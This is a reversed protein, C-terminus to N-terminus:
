IAHNEEKFLSKLVATFNPMPYGVVHEVKETSLGLSDGRLVGKLAHVSGINYSFDQVNLYKAVGMIFEKKSKVESSAVNLIGHPQLQLLDCLIYALQNVALTSTYFDDFLTIREKNKLANIVWHLFGKQTGVFNTRVVLSNAYIKTFCEGIYKTKAYENILVIPADETHKKRGDGTYYHDTSIQLLYIGSSRCLDVLQSVLRTNIAYAELPSEECATLNVMAAANVIIDPRENQICKNLATKSRLDFSWDTGSHAVGVVNKGRKNLLARLTTGLLGTAGLLLIKM